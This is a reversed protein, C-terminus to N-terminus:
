QSIWIKGAQEVGGRIEILGDREIADASNNILNLFIEQLYL